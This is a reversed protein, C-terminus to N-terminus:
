LKALAWLYLNHCHSNKLLNLTHTQNRVRLQTGMTMQKDLLEEEEPDGGEGGKAGYPGQKVRRKPIMTGKLIARSCQIQALLFALRTYM